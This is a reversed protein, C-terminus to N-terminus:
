ELGITVTTGGGVNPMEKFPIQFVTVDDLMSKDKTPLVVQSTKPTVSYDGTYNPLRGGGGSGGEEVTIDVYNSDDIGIEVNNTSDTISVDIYLTNSM